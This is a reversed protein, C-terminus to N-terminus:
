LAGLLFALARQGRGTSIGLVLGLVILAAGALSVGKIFEVASVARRTTLWELRARRAGSDIVGPAFRLKSRGPQPYCHTVTCGACRPTRLQCVGLEMCTYVRTTKATSM